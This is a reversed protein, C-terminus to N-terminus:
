RPRLKEIAKTSVWWIDEHRSFFLYRGDLSLTPSGEVHETNIGVGLNRPEGWSGESAAFAVYLDTGGFGDSRRVSFVLFSEDRAIAPAYGEIDPSLREAPLYGEKAREFRIIGSAFITGMSSFSPAHVTQDIIPRGLSQPASWGSETREVIWPNLAQGAGPCPRRSVFVMRQGDPLLCPHGDIYRGSFPAAVPLHLGESTCTMKMITPRGGEDRTFYIESWDETVTLGYEQAPGSVIGPLFVVATTGPPELRVLVSDCAPFPSTAGTALITLCITVAIM